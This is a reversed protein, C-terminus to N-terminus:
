RVSHECELFLSVLFRESILINFRSISEINRDKNENNNSHKVNKKKSFLSSPNGREGNPHFIETVFKVKPPKAPYDEPFV